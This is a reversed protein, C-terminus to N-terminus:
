VPEVGQPHFGSSESYGVLDGDDGKGRAGLELTWTREGVRVGAMSDALVPPYAQGGVASDLSFNGKEAKNGRSM